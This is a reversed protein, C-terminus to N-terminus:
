NSSGGGFASSRCGAASEERKPKRRSHARGHVRHCAIISSDHRLFFEEFHAALHDFQQGVGHEAHLEFVAM